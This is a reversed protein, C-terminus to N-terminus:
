EVDKLFEHTGVVSRPRGFFLNAVIVGIPIMLYMLGLALWYTDFTRLELGIMQENITGSFPVLIGNTILLLPFFITFTSVYGKYGVCKKLWMWIVFLFLWWAFTTWGLDWDLDAIM